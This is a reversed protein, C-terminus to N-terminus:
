ASEGGPLPIFQVVTAAILALLSLWFGFKLSVEIGADELEGIGAGMESALSLLTLFLFGLICVIGVGAIGARIYSGRNGPLFFLAGGATALLAAVYLLAAESTLADGIDYDDQDLESPLDDVQTIGKIDTGSVTVLEEGFCSISMWPLLFFVLTLVFLASGSLGRVLPLKGGAQGRSDTIRDWWGRENGIAVVGAIAIAAGGLVGAWGMIELAFNVVKLFLDSRLLLGLALVAAGFVVLSLYGYKEHLPNLERLKEM